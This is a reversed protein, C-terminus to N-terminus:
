GNQTEEGQSQVFQAQREVRRRVLAQVTRVAPLIWQNFLQRDPAVSGPKGQGACVPCEPDEGWCLYCAGLAAALDDNRAELLDLEESLEAIQQAMREFRKRLRQIARQQRSPTYDDEDMTIVDSREAEEDDQEDGSLTQTLLLRTTPDMDSSNNLMEEVMPRTDQGARAGLMMNLLLQNMDNMLVGGDDAAHHDVVLGPGRKM